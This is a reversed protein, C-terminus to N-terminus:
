KGDFIIVKGNKNKILKVTMNGSDKLLSDGKSILHNFGWSTSGLYYIKGNITVSPVSKGDYEVKEVIGKFRFKLIVKEAAMHSYLTNGLFAILALIFIYRLIKRLEGIYDKM